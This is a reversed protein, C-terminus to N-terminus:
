SMAVARRMRRALSIIQQAIPWTVIWAPVNICLTWLISKKQHLQVRRIPDVTTGKQKLHCQFAQLFGDNYTRYIADSCHMKSEHLYDITCTFQSLSELLPLMLKTKGLKTLKNSVNLCLCGFNRSLLQDVWLHIRRHKSNLQCVYWREDSDLAFMQFHEGM